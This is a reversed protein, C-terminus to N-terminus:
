SRRQAVWYAVDALSERAGSESEPVSELAALAKDRFDYAVRFSEELIDSERIQQLARRLNEAKSRGGAFFRKVPNNEPDRDILLLAPLTLTGNMLDSGAPKGLEEADATFDLIDDMIQFAMGVNEGYARLAVCHEEPLGGVMGGGQAAAAFLSATKGYIRDFYKRTDQSYEYAGMDQQLEGTTMEMLTRAFLRVVDVNGTRAVLDAANAFMYDGVMVTAANSFLSNATARGRRTSAADIVDDHVLSASHVLEISAALPILLDLDYRGLRGALLAVAPRVRKGGAELVHDLINSLFPFDKPRLSNILEDVKVVDDRVPGYLESSVSPSSM